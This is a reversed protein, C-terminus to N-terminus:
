AAAAEPMSQNFNAQDFTNGDLSSHPRRSNYFSLYHGFQLPSLVEVAKVEVFTTVQGGGSTGEGHDLTQGVQFPASSM